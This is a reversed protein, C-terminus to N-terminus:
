YHCVIRRRLPPVNLETLQKCGAGKIKHAGLNPYRGLHCVAEADCDWAVWAHGMDLLPAPLHRRPPQRTLSGGGGQIHTGQNYIQKLYPKRKLNQIM